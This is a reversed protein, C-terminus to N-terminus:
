RRIDASRGPPDAVPESAAHASASAPRGATGSASAEPLGALEAFMVRYRIMAERLQETTASDPAIARAQLYGELAGAHHVSLAEMSAEPDAAPYGCDRMVDWILAGAATVAEAPADVFREQVTTWDGSYGAQQEPSLEHVGLAEVRRRRAVLEAEAKKRSGLERTMRDYEPGFQRRIGARRARAAALAVATAIVIVGIVIGIIVGISM